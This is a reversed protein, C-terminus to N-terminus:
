DQARLGGAAIAALEADTLDHRTRHEIPADKDGRLTVSTDYKSRNEKAIQFKVIDAAVRGQEPTITKALVAARIDDLSEFRCDARLERARAYLERFADHEPGAAALWRFITTDSPMDEIDGVAKVSLGEAIKQCVREALEPTFTTPRAM